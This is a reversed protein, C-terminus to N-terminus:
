VLNKFIGILEEEQNEWILDNKAKQLAKSFDKKLMKKIQDAIIKPNRNLAIEGVNYNLIVQKMEPLNSVLVPVQAQIYDFIKNPLAFRYNLGLDEELSIGIAALPTINHLKKPDIKGLFKVKDEIKKAITEKQLRDLIDGSGAIVFICNPLHQVAEIMLELGRGINVSGQYLIVKKDNVQFPFHSPKLEKQLPLNKIIKFESNYKESYFDAISKCVTYNNKLKPIMLRELSLWFQKISPKNVLEPTESFLEHSDFVIPKQQIKSVLFNALLTDLDNSLLIDKKSFLLLFFLRFNYEAYFLFGKNFLLKIRKTKYNREIKLSNKQKRGVLLINYGATHLTTCVKAVRQDTSLDTTVSVIVRKM